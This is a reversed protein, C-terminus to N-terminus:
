KRRRSLMKRTALLSKYEMALNRREKMLSIIDEWARLDETRLERTLVFVQKELGMRRLEISPNHGLTFNKIPILMDGCKSVESDIRKRFSLGLKIREEIEGEIEQIAEALIRLKNSLTGALLEPVINPKTEEKKGERFDSEEFEAQFEPSRFIEQWQRELEADRISKQREGDTSDLGVDSNDYAGNKANCKASSKKSSM